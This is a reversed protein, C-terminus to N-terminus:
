EREVIEIALTKALSGLDHRCKKHDGGIQPPNGRLQDSHGDNQMGDTPKIAGIPHQDTRSQHQDISIYTAHPRDRDSIKHLGDGNDDTQQDQRYIQDHFCAPEARHDSGCRWLKELKEGVWLRHFPRM